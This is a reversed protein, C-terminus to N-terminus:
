EARIVRAGLWGALLGVSLLVACPVLMENLSFGRWLAGEVALVTWRMPSLHSIKVLWAPMAFLPIMGGGIMAMPMLLAWGAGSVAQENKGLTSIFLMLGTFCFAICVVSLLLLPLSGPRVGFFLAGVGLLLAQVILLGLFGGLGKGALLRVASLPSARLRLLTGHTRESALGVAFSMTAGILGWLIGQPFSFEFASHPGQLAGVAEHAEVALPVWGGKKAAPADAPAAASDDKRHLIRDLDKLFPDFDAKTKEDASALDRRTAAIFDDGAKPDTVISSLRRAAQRQLLGELMAKEANRAPDIWLEVAPPAGYFMRSGAEGFGRPLLVAATLKGNRVQDVAAARELPQASFEEAGTLGAAFERSAASQDEDVVAIQLKGKEGGGGFIFGFLIAVLLPWGFTFFCAGRNRLLLKLDKLAIALLPSLM